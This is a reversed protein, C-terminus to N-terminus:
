PIGHFLIVLGAFVLVGELDYLDQFGLLLDTLM